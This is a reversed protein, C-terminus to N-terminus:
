KMELIAFPILPPLIAINCAIRVSIETSSFSLFFFKQSSPAINPRQNTIPGTRPERRILEPEILAIKVNQNTKAAIFITKTNDTNLSVFWLRECLFIVALGKGIKRFYILEKSYRQIM